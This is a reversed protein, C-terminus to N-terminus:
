EKTEMVWGSTIFKDIIVQKGSTAKAPFRLSLTMATENADPDMAMESSLKSGREAYGYIMHTGDPSTLFWSQWKQDDSFAFNYYDVSSLTVRFIVPEVPKKALFEEWPMDSWGVWSEWDIKISSPSEVFSMAKEEHARTLIAVTSINGRRAVGSLKDLASMGVANIKGDPYLRRMRAEAVGPDRVLPLLDEIRTAELFKRAIPEAETLFALETRQTDSPRTNVVGKQSKTINEVAAVAPPQPAKRASYLAIFVGTVILSFFTVGGVLMWLMWRKEVRRSGQAVEQSSDWGHGEEHRSKKRRRVKKTSPTGPNASAAQDEDPVERFAAM